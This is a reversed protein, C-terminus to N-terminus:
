LNSEKDFGCNCKNESNMKKCRRCRWITQALKINNELYDDPVYNYNNNDNDNDDYNKANFGKHIDINTLDEQYYQNVKESSPKLYNDGLYTILCM